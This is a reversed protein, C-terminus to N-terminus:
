PLGGLKFMTFRGQGRGWIDSPVLTFKPVIHVNKVGRGWRCFKPVKNMQFVWLLKVLCSQENVTHTPHGHGFSIGPRSVISVESVINYKQLPTTLSVLNIEVTDLGM